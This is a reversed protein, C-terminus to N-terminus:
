IRSRLSEKGGGLKFWNIGSQMNNVSQYHEHCLINLTRLFLSFFFNILSKVGEAFNTKPHEIAAARMSMSVGRFSPLLFTKLLCISKINFKFIGRFKKWRFQIAECRRSCMERGAGAERKGVDHFLFIKGILCNASFFDDM